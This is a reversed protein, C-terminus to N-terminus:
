AFDDKGMDGNHNPVRSLMKYVVGPSGVREVYPVLCIHENISAYITNDTTQRQCVAM